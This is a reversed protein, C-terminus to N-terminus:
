VKVIHKFGRDNPGYGFCRLLKTLFAPALRGSYGDQFEIEVEDSRFRKIQEAEMTENGDNSLLWVALLVCAKKLERPIVSDSICTGECDVMGRRPWKLVQDEPPTLGPGTKHGFWQYNDDLYSTAMVLQMERATDDALGTWVAYTKADAILFNDADALSAYSNANLVITGDEVIFTFAM